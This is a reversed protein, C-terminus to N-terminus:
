ERISSPGEQASITWLQVFDIVQLPRKFLCLFLTEGSGGMFIANPIGNSKKKIILHYFGVQSWQDISSHSTLRLFVRNQDSARFVSEEMEKLDFNLHNSNMWHDTLDRGRRALEGWESHPVRIHRLEEGLKKLDSGSYTSLYEIQNWANECAFPLLDWHDEWGYLVGAGLILLPFSRGVRDSSDRVVGCVLHEKQSGRAWFRWSHPNRMSKEKQLYMQYGKEVWESFLKFLPTEEGLKFFDSAIPHKGFISWQWSLNTKM